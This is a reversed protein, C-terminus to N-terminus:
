WLEKKSTTVAKAGARIAQEIEQRSEILGGAIIETGTTENIRNIYSPLIGPLVEIFDPNVKEALRCSTELAITDLM